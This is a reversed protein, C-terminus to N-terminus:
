NIAILVGFTMAVVVQTHIIQKDAAINPNKNCLQDGAFINPRV